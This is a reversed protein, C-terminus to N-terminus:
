QLASTLRLLNDLDRKVLPRTRWTELTVLLPHRHELVGAAVDDVSMHKAHLV